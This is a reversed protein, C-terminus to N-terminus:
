NRSFLLLYSFQKYVQSRGTNNNDVDPTQSEDPVNRKIQSSGTEPKPPLLDITEEMKPPVLDVTEEVKSESTIATSAPPEM